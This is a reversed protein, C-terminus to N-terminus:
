LGEQGRRALGRIPTVVQTFSRNLQGQPIVDAYGKYYANNIEELNIAMQMAKRVRIDDFPPLQVNMGFGNDSRNTFPYIVLEPNTRQLSELQDLTRIQAQGTQGIYDLKGSRLAAMYTAVEPM